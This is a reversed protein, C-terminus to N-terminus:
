DADPTDQGAAKKDAKAQAKKTSEAAKTKERERREFSYNTKRPIVTEGSISSPGSCNAGGQLGTNAVVSIRRERSPELPPLFRRAAAPREGTEVTYWRLKRRPIATLLRDGM